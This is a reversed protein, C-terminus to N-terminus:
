SVVTASTPIVGAPAVPLVIWLVLYALVGTGAFLIALLWVVRVITPDLDFYDALGACVGAIKKDTSSRM